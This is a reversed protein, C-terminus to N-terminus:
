LNFGDYSCLTFIVFQFWYFLMILTLDPLWNLGADKIFMQLVGTAYIVM